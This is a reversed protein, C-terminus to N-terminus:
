LEVGQNLHAVDESSFCAEKYSYNDGRLDLSRGKLKFFSLAGGVSLCVLM